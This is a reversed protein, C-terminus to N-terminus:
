DIEWRSGAGVDLVRAGFRGRLYGHAAMGTCHCPGLMRCNVAGAADGAEKLQEESCGGLHLGGVLAHVNRAGTLACVHRLTNAVGAHACGTIVVLGTRTEVFLAQDDTLPDPDRGAADLFFRHSGTLEGKARPIEGSCWVGAVVETAGRTWVVRDRFRELAGRSERPMGAPRIAGDGRKAFKLGLAEPHLFIAGPSAEQVVAALGGSHDYHGHSLVVADLPALVAKLAAANHLLALGHGTDFLVRRGGTEVLVALGHEGLLGPSAVYNDTLVTIRLREIM